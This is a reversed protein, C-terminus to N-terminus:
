MGPRHSADFGSDRSEPDVREATRGSHRVLSKYSPYLAAFGM